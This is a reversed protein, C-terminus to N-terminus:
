STGNTYVHHPGMSPVEQMKTTTTSSVYAVKQLKKMSECWKEKKKKKQLLGASLLSLARPNM